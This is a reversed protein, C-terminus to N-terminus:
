PSALPNRRLNLAAWDGSSLFAGWYLPNKSDSEKLMHLQAQRLAESKTIGEPALLANYYASMFEVSAKDNIEWLTVVLTRAGARWFGRKMGELGEGERSQGLGTKCASLVVLQTEDLDLSAIELGTWFGDQGSETSSNSRNANALVLFSRSM